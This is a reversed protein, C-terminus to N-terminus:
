IREGLYQKIKNFIRTSKTVRVKHNDDKEGLLSAIGKEPNRLYSLELQRMGLGSSAMKNAMDEGIVEQHVLKILSHLHVKCMKERDRFVYTVLIQFKLSPRLKPHTM